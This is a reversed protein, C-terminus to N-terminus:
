SRSSSYTNIALQIKKMVDNVSIQTMRNNKTIRIPPCNEGPENFKDVILERFKYPGCRSPNSFGYLGITPIGLAVALHLPGTDPGVVVNCASLQLMTNRIPKESAIPPHCTALSQINVAADLERISPGCIIVPQLDFESTILDSLRAYGEVDWDKRLDSSTPILGIVPRSFNSRWKEKWLLESESFRLDWVPEPYDIELYDLFELFQDLVHGPKNNPIRYNTVLWNLERARRVDFGIKIDSKVCSTLLSAKVSVQPVILMDYRDKRILSRLTLWDKLSMRRKFTLVRDVAPHHKLLEGPVDQVIWTLHADPYGVRLGNIFAVAHVVDGIASSRIFCIKQAKFRPM